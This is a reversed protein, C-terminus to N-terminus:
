YDTTGIMLKKSIKQKWGKFTNLDFDLALEHAFARVIEAQPGESGDANVPLGVLFQTVLEEKALKLLRDLRRRIISQAHEFAQATNKDQSITAFTKISLGTETLLKESIDTM